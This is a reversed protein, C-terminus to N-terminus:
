VLVKMRLRMGLGGMERKFFFQIQTITDSHGLQAQIQWGEGGRGQWHAAIVPM